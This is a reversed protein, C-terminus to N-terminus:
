RMAGTVGYHSNWVDLTGGALRNQYVPAPGQGLFRMGKVDAESYDFGIGFYEQEGSLAYVYDISLWGNPKLRYTLSKM